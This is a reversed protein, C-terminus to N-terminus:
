AAKTRASVSHWVEVFRMIEAESTEPGFSVRIVESAAKADWGMAKLV